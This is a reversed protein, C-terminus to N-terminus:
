NPLQADIPITKFKLNVNERFQEQDSSQPNYLIFSMRMQGSQDLKWNDPYDISYHQDTLTTWRISLDEQLTSEFTQAYINLLAFLVFISALSIRTM